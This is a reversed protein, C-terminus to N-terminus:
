TVTFVTNTNSLLDHDEVAVSVTGPAAAFIAVTMTTANVYKASADPTTAGGTYVTSWQTFGTGTITVKLPLSTAAATTPSISSVVPAVPVAAGGTPYPQLQAIYGRARAIDKALTFDPEGAVANPPVTGPMAAKAAQTRPAYDPENAGGGSRALAVTATAQDVDDGRVGGAWDTMSDYRPKAENPNADAIMAGTIAAPPTNWVKPAIESLKLTTIPTDQARNLDALAM